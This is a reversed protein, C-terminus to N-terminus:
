NVLAVNRPPASAATSAPPAALRRLFRYHSRVAGSLSPQALYEVGHKRCVREIIRSLRPYHVHCVKPFLHHTAQFNLGGLYWTVLRNGRAFDATTQIQHRVWESGTEEGLAPHGTEEVSHALQFVVSLVMGMIGSTVFYFVAVVWVRHFFCPIVFAWAAFVLKGAILGFLEWGRPRPFPRSSIKGTWLKRFDNYFHWQAPLLAYFLWLYFHQFRHLAYYPDDPALRGIPHIEIDEDSGPINTYTHHALNHKQIWLYSSAGMLDLTLGTLRNLWNRKSFAGHNGDHQINFGIGAIALGLSVAALLGQWWTAARFTLLYYSLGFWALLVAAKWYMRFDANRSKGTAEFFRDVRSQLADKLSSAPAFLHQQSLTVIFLGSALGV